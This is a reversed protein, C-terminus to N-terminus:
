IYLCGSRSKAFMIISYSGIFNCLVERVNAKVAKGKGGRFRPSALAIAVGDGGVRVAGREELSQARADDRRLERGYLRVLRM